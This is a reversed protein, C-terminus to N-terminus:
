PRPPKRWIQASIWDQLQSSLADRDENLDSTDDDNLREVRHRIQGVQRVRWTLGEDAEGTIEAEARANERAPLRRADLRNLADELYACANDDDKAALQHPIGTLHPDAALTELARRGSVSDGASLLDFLLAACDADIPSLRELRAEFPLVLERRTACILLIANELLTEDALPSTFGTTAIPPLPATPAM